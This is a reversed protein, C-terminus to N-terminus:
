GQPAQGIFSRLNYNIKCRLLSSHKDGGTV